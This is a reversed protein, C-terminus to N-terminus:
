INQMPPKEGPPKIKRTPPKLRNQKIKEESVIVLLEHIMDRAQKWAEDPSITNPLRVRMEANFRLTPFVERLLEANEDYCSQVAERAAAREVADPVSPEPMVKRLHGRIIDQLELARQEVYEVSRSDNLHASVFADFM